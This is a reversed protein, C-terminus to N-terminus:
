ATGYNPAAPHRVRGFRLFAETAEDWHAAAFPVVAIEYEQLFRALKPRADRDFRASLVLAAETLTPAGVALPEDRDIRGKTRVTRCITHSSWTRPPRQLVFGRGGKRRVVLDVERDLVQLLLLLKDVSRRCNTPDLLRYLQAPSTGLRRIIERKSLPSEAVAREAELALRYLLFDRLYPIRVRAWVMM